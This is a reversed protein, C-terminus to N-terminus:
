LLMNTLIVMKSVVSHYCIHECENKLIGKQREEGRRRQIQNMKWGNQKNTKFAAQCDDLPM